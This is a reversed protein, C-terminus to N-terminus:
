LCSSRGTEQDIYEVIEDIKRSNFNLGQREQDPTAFAPLGNVEIVVFEETQRDFVIDVGAIELGTIRAARQALDIVEPCPDRLIVSGGATVNTRWDGDRARRGYCGVFKGNVLDVRYDSGDYDIYREVYFYKYDDPNLHPKLQNLDAFNDIKVVGVGGWGDVPKFVLSGFEAFVQELGEPQDKNCLYFEATKIGNKHLLTNTKFKDETLKFSRFNNVTTCCDSLCEYLYMQYDTQEGANYSFFLNLQDLHTGKCEIGKATAKAYRLDLGSVTEIDRERLKHIMQQEIRAGGCNQYMWMGIKRGM